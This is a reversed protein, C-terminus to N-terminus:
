IAVIKVIPGSSINLKTTSLIEGDVTYYYPKSTTIEVKDTVIDHMAKSAVKKGTRIRPLNAFLEMPSLNIALFHLKGQEERARYFPKFGLGCEKGTAAMLAVFETEPLTRNGIKVNAKIPRFLKQIFRRSTLISGIARILLAVAKKFGTKGDKYYEHMVNAVAGNGFIFGLKDNVSLLTHKLVPCKDKDILNVLKQLREQPSGRMGLSQELLNMTGGRLLTLVPLDNGKYIEFFKTLVCHNTGDGGSIALIDIEKELFEKAVKELDELSRTERVIGRDGLITELQKRNSESDYKNRGAFPNFVVGIKSMNSDGLSM